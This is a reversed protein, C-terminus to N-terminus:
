PERMRFRTVGFEDLQNNEQKDESARFEEFHRERLNEMVKKQRMAEVLEKRKEELATRMQLIVDEERREKERISLIHSSLYSIDSPSVKVRDMARLTEMQRSREARLSELGAIRKELFERQESFESHRKEEVTKRYDLVSQFRFQFM